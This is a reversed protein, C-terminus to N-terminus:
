LGLLKAWTKDGCYGDAVLLNKTQFDLLAMESKICFDGDVVLGYSGRLNLLSQMSKVSESYDGRNLVPLKVDTDEQTNTNKIDNSNDVFSGNNNFKRADICWYYKVQSKFTYIDGNIRVDKSSAPDVIRVKDDVWYVVIFHGSSTWTGPGMCAILYYGQKLLEFAQDHIKSNPNGYTSTWSLQDCIIGYADFQPKFYGYYTGQKYAKYNHALSWTATTVPTINKDKMTALIIAASTPGCGASGITSTEGKTAYPVNKWRSDSQFYQIPKKNM